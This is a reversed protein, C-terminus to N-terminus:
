RDRAQAILRKMREHVDAREPSLREAQEEAHYSSRVLPGSECVEFGGALAAERLRAFEDPHVWRDIPLHNRTPQLYQGITLIDCDSWARVDRLLDLVENEHEGIGLMIGTKTVLGNAKFQQLVKLSREYRAQPRVAPHMRDVTEMNHSIIEPRADCVIQIDREM